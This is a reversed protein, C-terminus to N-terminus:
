FDLMREVVLTPGSKGAKLRYQLQRMTGGATGPAFVPFRRVLSNEILSMEDRGEYGATAGPHVDLDPLRIESLSKKRRAAYAVLSGRRRSGTDVVFVYVEPSGDADLDGVAANMVIGGIAREIPSRTKRLGAAEIKLTNDTVRNPSLVRFRIGQLELTRDFTRDPPAAPAAPNAAQQASAAFCLLM